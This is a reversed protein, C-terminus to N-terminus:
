HTEFEALMSEIQIIDESAGSTSSIMEQTKATVELGFQVFQLLNAAFGIAVFAEAM